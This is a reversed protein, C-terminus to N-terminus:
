IYKRCYTQPGCVKKKVHRRDTLAASFETATLQGPCKSDGLTLAGELLAGQVTASDDGRSDSPSDCRSTFQSDNLSVSPTHDLGAPGFFFFLLVM